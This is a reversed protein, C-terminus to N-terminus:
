KGFLWSFFRKTRKRKKDKPYFYYSITTNPLLSKLIISKGIRLDFDFNVIGTNDPLTEHPSFLLAETDREGLFDITIITFDEVMQLNIIDKDKNEIAAIVSSFPIQYYEFYRKLDKPTAGDITSVQVKENKNNFINVDEITDNSTNKVKVFYPKM